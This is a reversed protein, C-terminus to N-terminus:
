LENVRRKCIGNRYEPPQIYEQWFKEDVKAQIATRKREKQRIPEESKWLEEALISELKSLRDELDQIIERM